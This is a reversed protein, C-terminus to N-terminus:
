YHWCPFALFILTHFDLGQTTSRALDSKVITENVWRSFIPLLTVYILLICQMYLCNRGLHCLHYLIRMCHPLHLSSHEMWPDPLDGPSLFPLGSWYQQRSFVMSLPAQHAVTWPTAFLRVHSLSQVVFDEWERKVSFQVWNQSKLGFM